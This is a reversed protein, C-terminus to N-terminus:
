GPGPPKPRSARTLPHWRIGVTVKGAIALAFRRSEVFTGPSKKTSSVQMSQAVHRQIAGAVKSKRSPADRTRSCGTSGSSIV